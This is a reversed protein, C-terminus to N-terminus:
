KKFNNKNLDCVPLDQHNNIVYKYGEKIFDIWDPAIDQPVTMIISDDRFISIYGKDNCGMHQIKPEKHFM